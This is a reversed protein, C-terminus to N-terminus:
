FLLDVIVDSTTVVDVFKCKEATCSGECPAKLDVLAIEERTAEESM